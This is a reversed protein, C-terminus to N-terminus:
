VGLYHLISQSIGFCIGLFLLMSIFGSLMVSKPNTELLDAARKLGKGKQLAFLLSFAQQIVEIFTLDKEDKKESFNSFLPHNEHETEKKEIEDTMTVGLM